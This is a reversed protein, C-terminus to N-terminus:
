AKMTELCTNQSHESHTIITSQEAKNTNQFLFKAPNQQSIKMGSIWSLVSSFFLIFGIPLIWLNGWHSFAAFILIIGITTEIIHFNFTDALTYHSEYRKQFLWGDKLGIFIRFVAICHQIILIPAFLISTILETLFQGIFNLRGGYKKVRKSKTFVQAFGVLNPLILMLYIIGFISAKHTIEPLVTLNSSSANNILIPYFIVLFLWILSVLYKMSAAFLYLRTLPHFGKSSIIKLFQLNGRCWRRDRLIHDILTPPAQEFSGKIDPRMQVGWGAKNLLASEVFDHSFILEEEGKFNKLKPLGCCDAFARTRIIANHGFYNSETHSWISLGSALTNICISNSFQQLKGFVSWAGYQRPSSQVLALSPDQSLSNTLEIIAETQMLSDADLVLMADYAGGWGQVWQSINGTKYDTNDSRRRYFFNGGNPLKSLLFRMLTKEELIKDAIQTDSLIFFSYQHECKIGQLGQYMAHANGFVHKASENFVPMLIAVNLASCKGEKKRKTTLPAILGICALCATFAIPFFAFGILTLWLVEIQILNISSSFKSLTILLLGVFM